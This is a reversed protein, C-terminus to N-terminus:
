SAEDSKAEASKAWRLAICVLVAVIASVALASVALPVRELVLLPLAITIIGGGVFPSSLPAALAYDEAAGSDLEPDVVRLLVFGTATTGTSMGYNILGLPFWYRKPLIRKALFLLCVGAWIAGAVFLITFPVLLSAVAELNLSTIAAVVLVDMATATIRNVTERDVAREHGFLALTKRVILGGFLAYIFLPFDLVQSASLKSSLVERAEDVQPDSVLWADVGGAFWAVATKMVVGVGVALFLWVLQLLLPDITESGVKAYGIPPEENAPGRDDAMEREAAPHVWGRRVALNIWFIGTVVGYVLGGTAMLTGLDMGSPFDIGESAYVKGMAAATSHGGAFGTEILMGISNPVDFYPKILLWTAVLGVATQGLVIIWVMLGQRGVQGVSDRMPSPKRELLMGAFVFAILVKPWERLTGTIETLSTQVNEPYYGIGQVVLLGIGGAIVSAPIYLWHFVRFQLRLIVGALLLVTVFLLASM